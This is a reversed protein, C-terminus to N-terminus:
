DKWLVNIAVDGITRPVAPRQRQDVRRDSVTLTLSREDVWNGDITWAEEGLLGESFGGEGPAQIMASQIDESDRYRWVTLKRGGETEIVDGVPRRRIEFDIGVVQVVGYGGVFLHGQDTIVFKDPRRWSYFYDRSICAPKDVVATVAGRRFVWNGNWRDVFVSVDSPGRCILVLRRQYIVVLVLAAAVAALLWAWRRM